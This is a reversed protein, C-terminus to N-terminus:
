QGHAVLEVGRACDGGQRCAEPSLTPLIKNILSFYPINNRDLFELTRSRQWTLQVETNEVGLERCELAVSGSTSGTTGVDELIVVNTVNRKAFDGIVLRAGSTLRVKNDKDKETRLGTVSISNLSQAVDFAFQTTGNAIGLIVMNKLDPHRDKIAQKNLQKWIDYLKTGRRVVSFDLKRGHGGRVFEHHLQGQPDLFDPTAELASQFAEIKSM